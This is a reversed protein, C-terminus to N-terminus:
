TEYSLKGFDGKHCSKYQTSYGYKSYSIVLLIFVSTCFNPELLWPIGQSFNEISSPYLFVHSCPVQGLIDSSLITVLCSVELVNSAILEEVKHWLGGTNLSVNKAYNSLIILPRISKPCIKGKFNQTPRNLAFTIISMNSFSFPPYYCLYHFIAHYICENVRYLLIWLAECGVLECDCQHCGLSGLRPNNVVVVITSSFSLWIYRM